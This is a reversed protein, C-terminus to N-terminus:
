LHQTPRPLYDWPIIHYLSKLSSSYTDKIGLFALRTECIHLSALRRGPVGMSGLCFSPGPELPILCFPKLHRFAFGAIFFDPSWRQHFCTVFSINPTQLNRVITSSFQCGLPTIRSWADSLLARAFAALDPPHPPRTVPQSLHSVNTPCYHGLRPQYVTVIGNRHRIYVLLSPLCIPILYRGLATHPFIDQSV